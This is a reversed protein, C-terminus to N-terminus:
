QKRGPYRVSVVLDACSQSGVRAKVFAWYAEGVMPSNAAGFALENQAGPTPRFKGSADLRLQGDVYVKLDQGKMVVRYVHFESRADLDYRLGRNSWLDIHDPWLGLRESASGNSVILYSSGSVARARAEVITEEAPDAGWPFRWYLYDGNDTGRDALFLAGDALREETRASGRDRHWPPSPKRDGQYVIDWPDDQNPSQENLAIEVANEGRRVCDAPLPLDLWGEALKGGTLARGNFKVQVQEPHRLLLM